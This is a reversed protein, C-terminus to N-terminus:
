LHVGTVYHHEISQFCEKSLYLERCKKLSIRIMTATVNYYTLINIKDRDCVCVYMCVCKGTM